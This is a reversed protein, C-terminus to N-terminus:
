IKQQFIQTVETSQHGESIGEEKTTITTQPITFKKLIKHQNQYQFDRNAM